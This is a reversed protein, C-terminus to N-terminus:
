KNKMVPIWMHSPYESNRQFTLAPTGSEPYRDKMAADHGAIAVRLAHGEKIVVSIPNLTIPIETVEGPVLPMADAERFTHYVGLPVFPASGPDITKRHIARLLGETLYTVRGDPGIDELYLHFAGDTHTSAVHMVVTPSGTIELDSTMPPTTYHLLKADEQRRDDYVVTRGMQGMWRNQEGTSASFDVTYDDAGDTTEPMRTTLVGNEGFYLIEEQIGEPPWVNTEQWTGSGYTYYIIRREETFAEAGKLHRAFYDFMDSDTWGPERPSQTPDAGFLDVFEQGSHATPAIVLRQPTDFTLYKQLAGEAVGADVWGARTYTNVQAEEIQEKYRYLAVAETADHFELSKLMEALTQNSQHDQLAQRFITLDRGEPRKLGKIVASLLVKGIPPLPEASTAEIAGLINDADMDRIMGVWTHIFENSGLGGPRAVGTYQDFDPADPFVAKLQPRLAASSM